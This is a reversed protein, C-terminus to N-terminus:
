NCVPYVSIVQNSPRGISTYNTTGTNGRIVVSDFPIPPSVFTYNQDLGSTKGKWKLSGGDYLRIDLARNPGEFQPVVAERIEIAGFKSGPFDTGPVIYVEEGAGIIRDNIGLRFDIFVETSIKLWKDPNVQNYFGSGMTGLAVLNNRYQRNPAMAITETTPWKGKNIYHNPRGMWAGTSGSQNRMYVANATNAFYFRSPALLNPDIINPGPGLIHFRGGSCKFRVQNFFKGEAPDINHPVHYSIGFNRSPNNTTTVPITKILTSGHWLEISGMTNVDGHLVIDFGSLLNGAMGASLTFSIEEGADLSWNRDNPNGANMVGIAGNAMQHFPVGVNSTVVFYQNDSFNSGSFEQRSAIVNRDGVWFFNETTNQRTQLEIATGCPIPDGSKKSIRNNNFAVDDQLSKTCSSVLFISGIALAYTRLNMIPKM